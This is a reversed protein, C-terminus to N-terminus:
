HVSNKTSAIQNAIADAENQIASLKSRAESTPQVTQVRGSPLIKYIEGNPGIVDGIRAWPGEGEGCASRRDKSCKAREDITKRVQRVVACNAGKEIQLITFPTPNMQPIMSAYNGLQEASIGKSNWEIQGDRKVSVHNAIALVSYGDSPKLWGALPAACQAPYTGSSCGLILTCLGILGFM